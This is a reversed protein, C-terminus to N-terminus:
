DDQLQVEKLYNRISVILNREFAFRKFQQCDLGPDADVIACIQDIKIQELESLYAFM